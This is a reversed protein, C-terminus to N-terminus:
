NEAYHGHGLIGGLLAPAFMGIIIILLRTTPKIDIDSLEHNHSKPFSRTSLPTLLTAVYLFSGGSFLLAPGIWSGSAVTSNKDRLANLVLYSVIAGAPAAASFALIHSRIARASLAYSSLTTSLALSAPAKHIVIGAFVVLSISTQRSSTQSTISANRSVCASGFALGDSVSHVILGLTMLRPDPRSAMPSVDLPASANSEYPGRTGELLAIEADLDDELADGSIPIAIQSEDSGHDIYHSSAQEIVLMATFGSLLSLAITLVPPKTIVYDSGAGRIKAFYEDYITEIGEPIIVGMSTGLLIGMGLVSLLAIVHRPPSFILPLLGVFFSAAWLVSSLVLVDVLPM